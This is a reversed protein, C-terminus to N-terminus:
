WRFYSPNGDVYSRFEALDAVYLSVRGCGVCVVPNLGTIHRPLRFEVVPRRLWRDEIVAGVVQAGGCDGCPPLRM